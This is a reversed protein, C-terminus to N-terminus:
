RFISSSKTWICDRISQPTGGNTWIVLPADANGDATEFFWYFLFDESTVNIYGSYMEYDIQARGALSDPFKVKEKVVPNSCFTDRSSRAANMKREKGLLMRAEGVQSLALLAAATYSFYGPM